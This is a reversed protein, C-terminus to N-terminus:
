YPNANVLSVSNVGTQSVTACADDECVDITIAQGNAEKAEVIGRSVEMQFIPNRTASVKIDRRTEVAMMVTTLASYDCNTGSSSLDIGVVNFAAQVKQTDHGLDYAAQMVGCAGQDFNTNESWILRNAHLFCEYADFINMGQIEVLQYFAHNFIGSSYHVDMGNYYDRTHKISRNDDGPNIFYRLARSQSKFLEFGVMWDNSARGYVEAVEGSIDSFAENIGGGM